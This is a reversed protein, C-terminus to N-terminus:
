GFLEFFFMGLLMEVEFVFDVKEVLISVSERFFCVM